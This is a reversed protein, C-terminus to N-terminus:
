IQILEGKDVMDQYYCSPCSEIIENKTLIEKDILEFGQNISKCLPCEWDFDGPVIKSFNVKIKKM